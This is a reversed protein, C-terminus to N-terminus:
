LILHFLLLFSARFHAKQKTVTQQVYAAHCLSPHSPFHIHLTHVTCYKSWLLLFYLLHVFYHSCNRFASREKNICVQTVMQRYYLKHGQLLSFVRWHSITSSNTFFQQKDGYGRFSIVATLQYKIFFHTDAVVFEMIKDVGTVTLVDICTWICCHFKFVLQIYKGLCCHSQWQGM